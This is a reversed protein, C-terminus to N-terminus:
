SHNFDQFYCSSLLSRPPTVASLFVIAPNFYRNFNSMHGPQDVVSLWLFSIFLCSLIHMFFIFSLSLYVFLSKPLNVFASVPISLSLNPCTSLHGFSCLSRCCSLVDFLIFTHDLTESTIKVLFSKQRNSECSTPQCICLSLYVSLSKPLDVPPWFLM